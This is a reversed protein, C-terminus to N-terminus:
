DEKGNSIQRQIIKAIRSTEAHHVMHGAGALSEFTSGAIVQGLRQSQASTAVIKDNEGAIIAVPLRLHLYRSSLGHAVFPMMVTEAAAAALQSPRTALGISYADSFAQPVERPAFMKKIVAGSNIRGILSGVTYRVLTGLIPTASPASLITDARLTPFHYGSLLVLSTVREPHEVALALAVLTGWSHAVVQARGIGLVTLAKAFLAAQDTPGWPRGDPRESFGFGPRDFAIVKNTRAVLRLLGSSEFDQIMSGNGHLFIVPEGSGQEVYHLRM